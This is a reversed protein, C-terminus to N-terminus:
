KKNNTPPGRDVAKKCDIKNGLNEAFDVFNGFIRATPGLIASWQKM